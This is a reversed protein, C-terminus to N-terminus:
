LIVDGLQFDLVGYFELVLAPLDPTRTASLVSGGPLIELAKLTTQLEKDVYDRLAIQPAWSVRFQAGVAVVKTTFAHNGIYNQATFDNDLGGAIADIAHINIRDGESHHFNFIVDSTKGKNSGMLAKRMDGDDFIFVDAGLGGDFIDFGTGGRLIDKGAGGFLYDNGADGMLLDNGTDSFLSDNGTGGYLKDHGLDGNLFDNGADGYMTDAGDDGSASDNGYGGYVLDNGGAATIHDIGSGGYHSDNQDSARLSDNGADGYLRARHIGSNSINDDGVGGYLLDNGSGWLDDNGGGGYALLNGGNYTIQDHVAGGYVTDNGSAGAVTTGAAGCYIIDSGGQGFAFGRQSANAYITDNQATGEFTFPSNPVNPASIVAM